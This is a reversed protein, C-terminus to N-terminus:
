FESTTLYVIVSQKHLNTMENQTTASRSQYHVVGRWKNTHPFPALMGEGNELLPVPLRSFVTRQPSKTPQTILRVLNLPLRHKRSNLRRQQRDLGSALPILAKCGWLFPWRM